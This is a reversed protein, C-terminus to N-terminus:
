SGYVISIWYICFLKNNVFDKVPINCETKICLICGISIGLVKVSVNYDNWIFLINVVLTLDSIAAILCIINSFLNRKRIVFYISTRFDWLMLHCCCTWRHFACYDNFGVCWQQYLGDTWCNRHRKLRIYIFIQVRATGNFQVSEQM